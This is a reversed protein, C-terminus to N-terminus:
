ISNDSLPTDTILIGCYKKPNDNYNEDKYLKLVIANQLLFKFNKWFDEKHGISKTMIHAIEHLAVFMLTNEDILKEIDDRSRLCLVIKEGKNVSYSTYSSNKPTESINNPNFKEILRRVNEDNPHNKELYKCLDESNKRIKALLNAADTKDNLNRVLYKRNDFSALEYDVDNYKNEIYIYFIIFLFFIIVVNHFEIM